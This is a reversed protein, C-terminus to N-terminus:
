RQGGRASYLNYIYRKILRCTYLCLSRSQLLSHCTQTYMNLSLHIVLSLCILCIVKYSCRDTWRSLLRPWVTCQQIIQPFMSWQTYITYPGAPSQSWNWVYEEHVFSYAYHASRRNGTISTWFDTMKM